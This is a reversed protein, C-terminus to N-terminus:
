GANPIMKTMHDIFDAFNTEAEEMGKSIKEQDSANGEYTNNFTIYNQNIISTQSSFQNSLEQLKGLEDLTIKNDDGIGGYGMAATLSQMNYGIKGLADITDSGLESLIGGNARDTLMAAVETASAAFDGKFAGFAETLGNNVATIAESGSYNGDLVSGIYKGFADEAVKDAGETAPINRMDVDLGKFLGGQGTLYKAVEGFFTLTEPEETPTTEAQSASEKASQSKTVSSTADKGSKTLQSLTSNMATTNYFATAAANVSETSEKVDDMVSMMSKGLDRWKGNVAEIAALQNDNVMSRFAEGYEKMSSRVNSLVGGNGAAIEEGVQSVSTSVTEATGIATATIGDMVSRYKDAQEILYGNMEAANAIYQNNTSTIYGNEDFDYTFRKRGTNLYSLDSNISGRMAAIYEAQAKRVDAQGFQEYSGFDIGSSTSENKGIYQSLLERDKESLNFEQAANAVIEENTGSATTLFKALEGRDVDNSLPITDLSARTNAFGSGRSGTAGNAGFDNDGTATQGGDLFPSNMTFSSQGEFEGVGLKKKVFSALAGFPSKDGLLGTGAGAAMGIAPAATMIGTGAITLGVGLGALPPFLTGLLTLISGIAATVAGVFTLVVKTSFAAAIALGLRHVVAELGGAKEVVGDLYELFDATRAIVAQIIPKLEEWFQLMVQAIRFFNDQMESDALLLGWENKIQTLADGITEKYNNMADDAVDNLSLMARKVDEISYMSADLRAWLNADNAGKGGLAKALKDAVDPAIARIQKLDNATMRGNATMNAFANELQQIGSEGVGTTKALASVTQLFRSANEDNWVASNTTILKLASSQVQAYSTNTEQAVRLFERQMQTANEVNGAVAILQLNLQQFEETIKRVENFTVAVGIKALMSQMNNASARIQREADRLSKNDLMTKLLMIFGKGDM